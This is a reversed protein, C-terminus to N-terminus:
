APENSELWEVEDSKGEGLALFEQWYIDRGQKMLPDDTGRRHVVVHEIHKGYEALAQDVIGKLPVNKGKRYTLDSCFLAKVGALQIRDGLAGSGFGAFVAIHVAGIRVCALM